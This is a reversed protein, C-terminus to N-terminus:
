GHWRAIDRNRDGGDVKVQYVLQALRGYWTLPVDVIEEIHAGYGCRGALRGEWRGAADPGRRGIIGIRECVNRGSHVYYGHLQHIVVM